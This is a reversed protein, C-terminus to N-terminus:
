ADAQPPRAPVPEYQTHASTTVGAIKRQVSEQRATSRAQYQWAVKSMWNGAGYSEATTAEVEGLAFGLGERFCHPTFFGPELGLAVACMDLVRQLDTSRAAEGSLMLFLPDSSSTKGPFMEERAQLYAEMATIPCPRGPATIRVFVSKERAGAKHSKTRDYELIARDKNDKDRKWATYSLCMIPRTMDKMEEVEIGEDRMRQWEEAQKRNAVTRAKKSVVTEGTRKGSFCLITFLAEYLRCYYPEMKNFVGAAKVQVLTEITFPEAQNKPRIDTQRLRRKVMRCWPDTKYPDDMGMREYHASMHVTYQYLSANKIRWENPDTCIVWALFAQATATSLADPSDMSEGISWLFREFARYGTGYDYNTSDARMMDM